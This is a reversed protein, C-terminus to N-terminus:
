ERVKRVYPLVEKPWNHRSKFEPNVWEEHGENHYVLARPEYDGWYGRERLRENFGWVEGFSPLEKFGGAAIADERKIVCAGTELYLLKVRRDGATYPLICPDEFPLDFWDAYQSHQPLLAYYPCIFTGEFPFVDMFSRTVIVDDDLMYLYPTEIARLAEDRSQALTLNRARYLILRHGQSQLIEVLRKVKRINEDEGGDWIHIKTPEKLSSFLSVLLRELSRPRNKTQIVITVDSM